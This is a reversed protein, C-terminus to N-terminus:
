GCESTQVIARYPETPIGGAVRGQTACEPESHSAQLWTGFRAAKLRRRGCYQISRRRSTGANFPKVIYHDVGTNGAAIVNDTKVEATVM